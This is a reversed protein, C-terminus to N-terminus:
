IRSGLYFASGGVDVNSSNVCVWQVSYGKDEYGRPVTVTMYFSGPGETLQIFPSNVNLAGSSTYKTAFRNASHTSLILVPPDNPINTVTTIKIRARAGATSPDPCNLQYEDINKSGVNLTANIIGAAEVRGAFLVFFLALVLVSEVVSIVRKM